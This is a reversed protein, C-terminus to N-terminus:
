REPILHFNELPQPRPRGPARSTGESPVRDVEEESGQDRDPVRGGRQRFVWGRGRSLHAGARVQKKLFTGWIRHPQNLLPGGFINICRHGPVQAYTHLLETTDSEKCGWPSSGALSRQGQSEGPLFLTKM